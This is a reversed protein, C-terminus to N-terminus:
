SLMLVLSFLQPWWINSSPKPCQSDSALPKFCRWRGPFGHFASHPKSFVSHYPHRASKKLRSGFKSSVSGRDSFNWVDSHFIFLDRSSLRVSTRLTVYTCTSFCTIICYKAIPWCYLIYQIKTDTSIQSMVLRAPKEKRNVYPWMKSGNDAEPFTCFMYFM